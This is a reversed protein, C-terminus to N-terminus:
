DRGRIAEMDIVNGLDNVYPAVYDYERTTRAKMAAEYSVRKVERNGNRLYENARAEMWKTVDTDAPGGNTPNYKFGGDQPPNHSPTM